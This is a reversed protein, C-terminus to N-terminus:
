IRIYTKSKTSAISNIKSLMFNDKGSYHGCPMKCKETTIKEKSIIDIEPDSNEDKRESARREKGILFAYRKILTPDITTEDEFFIGLKGDVIWICPKNFVKSM